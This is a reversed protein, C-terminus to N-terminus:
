SVFHPIANSVAIFNSFQTKVWSFFFGQRAAAELLPHLTSVKPDLAL